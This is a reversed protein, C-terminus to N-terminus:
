VYPLVGPPIGHKQPTEYISPVHFHPASPSSMLSLGLCTHLVKMWDFCYESYFVPQRRVRMQDTTM